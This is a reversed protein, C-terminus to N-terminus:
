KVYIWIRGNVKIQSKIKEKTKYFTYSQEWYEYSPIEDVIGIIRDPYEKIEERTMIDVKGDYTACVCDGIHYNDRNQYPYVLVRGAVAIPTKATDSMGIAHGFTDSVIRAGPHMRRNTIHMIGDEQTVVCYGPDITDTQRYEAYDNWIANKVKGDATVEASDNFWLSVKTTGNSKAIIENSDMEIHASTQVGGVVLAVANAANGAADTASVAFLRNCHLNATGNGSGFYYDAPKSRSDTARYGFYINTNSSDTGGFNVENSNNFYLWSAASGMKSATAANGSCASATTATAANGTCGGILTGAIQTCSIYAIEIYSRNTGNIAGYKGLMWCGDGNKNYLLIKGSANWATTSNKGNGVLLETFGEASTTGPTNNRLIFWWAGTDGNNYARYVERNTTATGTNYYLEGTMTGGSLALDSSAHGTISAKITSPLLLTVAASGNVSVATGANTSSADKITINRATGWNATTIAASGDFDTGNIARKTALKTATDVNYASSKSTRIDYGANGTRGDNTEPLYYDEYYGVRTTTNATKSYQRFFFRTKYYTSGNKAPVQAYLECWNTQATTVYTSGGARTDFRIYPWPSGAISSIFGASNYGTISNAYINNLNANASNNIYYTTGNAFYDIGNHTTNGNFYSTGNVYLKYTTNDSNQGIALGKRARFRPATVTLNGGDDDSSETTVFHFSAGTAADNHDTYILAGAQANFSASTNFIIQPGGDSFRFVGAKNSLLDRCAGDADGSVTNGYTPGYIILGNARIDVTQNNRSDSILYNNLVYIHDASSLKTASESYVMRTTTFATNGTGGQGTPLTGWKLDGNAATAYVAGNASAKWAPAASGKGSLLAGNTGAATNALTTSASAYLIGWQTWSTEGTGGQGVTVTNKTTLISYGKNETLGASVAPLDFYEYTDLRAKTSNNYSYNLVRFRTTYYLDGDGPNDRVFGFNGWNKTNNSGQVVIRGSNVENRIVVNTGKFTASSNVTLGYLNATGSKNIYYTTGNAFYDIGNHVTNGNFYSSGNVYLQYSTDSDGIGLKGTIELYGSSSEIIRSTYNDTSSNFYFDIYPTASILEIWPSILGGSTTLQHSLTFASGNWTLTGAATGDKEIFRINTNGTIGKICIAGNSNQDGIYCDNGMANLTNNAFTVTAAHTTAGAVYM